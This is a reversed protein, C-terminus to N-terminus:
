SKFSIRNIKKCVRVFPKQSHYSRMFCHNKLKLRINM